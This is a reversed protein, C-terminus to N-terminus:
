AKLAYFNTVVLYHTYQQSVNIIASGEDKFGLISITVGCLLGITRRNTIVFAIVGKVKNM